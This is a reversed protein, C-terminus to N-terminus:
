ALRQWPLMEKLWRLYQVTKLSTRVCPKRDEIFM